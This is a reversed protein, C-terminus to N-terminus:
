QIAEPNDLIIQYNDSREERGKTDAGLPGQSIRRIDSIGGVRSLGHLVVFAVGALVDAGAPDYPAGRLRLQVRRVSLDDDTSAYVRVGITRNPTDQTAGYRIGVVDQTYDPADPDAVWSWGPVGGLIECLRYTLAADDIQV